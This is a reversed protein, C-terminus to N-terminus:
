LNAPSSSYFWVRNDTRRHRHYDDNAFRTNISRSVVCFLGAIGRRLQGRRIAIKISCARYFPPQPSTHHARPRLEQM